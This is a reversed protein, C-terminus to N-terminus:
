VLKPVQECWHENYLTIGMGKCIDVHLQACVKDHRKIYQEEALIPAHEYSINWQKMLNNVSDANAIQQKYYIYIYIYIYINTDNNLRV